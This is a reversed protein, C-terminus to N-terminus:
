EGGANRRRRELDSTDYDDFEVDLEKPFVACVFVWVVLFIVAACALFALMRLGVSPWDTGGFTAAHAPEPLACWVGYWAAVGPLVALMMKAYDAAESRIVRAREIVRDLFQEIMAASWGENTLDAAVHHENALDTTERVNNAMADVMIAVTESAINHITTM